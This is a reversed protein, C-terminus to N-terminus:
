GSSLRGLYKKVFIASGFHMAVEIDSCDEGRATTPTNNNKTEFDIGAFLWICLGVLLIIFGWRKMSGRKQDEPTGSIGMQRPLKRRTQPRLDAESMPEGDESVDEDDSVSKDQSTDELSEGCYRCKIAEAKVLEDQTM